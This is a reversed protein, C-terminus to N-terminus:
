VVGRAGGILTLCETGWGIGTFAVSDGGERVTVGEKKYIEV